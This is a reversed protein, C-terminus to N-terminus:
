TLSAGDAATPVIEATCSRTGAGEAIRCAGVAMLGIPTQTSSAITQVAVCSGIPAKAAPQPRPQAVAQGLLGSALGLLAFTITSRHM